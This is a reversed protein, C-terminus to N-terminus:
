ALSACDQQHARPVSSCQITRRSVAAGMSCRTPGNSSTMLGLLLPNTSSPCTPDNVNVKLFMPSQSSKVRPSGGVYLGNDMERHSMWTQQSLICQLDLTSSLMLPTSGRSSIPILLFLSGSTQSLSLLSARDVVFPKGLGLEIHQM